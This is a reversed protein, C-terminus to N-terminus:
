RGIVGGASRSNGGWTGVPPPADSWAHRWRRAPHPPKEPSPHRSAPSSPSAPPTAAASAPPRSAIRGRPPCTRRSGTASSPHPRTSPHTGRASSLLPWPGAPLLPVLPHKKLGKWDGLSPRIGDHEGYLRWAIRMYLGPPHQPQPLSRACARARVELGALLAAAVEAAAAPAGPTFGAGAERGCVSV